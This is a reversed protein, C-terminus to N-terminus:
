RITLFNNKILKKQYLHIMKGFTGRGQGSSLLCRGVM